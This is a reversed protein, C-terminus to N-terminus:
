DQLPGKKKRGGKKRYRMDFQSASTNSVVKEHLEKAFVGVGTEVTGDGLRGGGQSPGGATPYINYSSL